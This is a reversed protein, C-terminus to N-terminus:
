RRQPSLTITPRIMMRTFALSVRSIWLIVTWPWQESVCGGRCNGVWESVETPSSSLNLWLSGNIIDTSNSSLSWCVKMIKALLQRDFLNACTYFIIIIVCFAASLEIKWAREVRLILVNVNKNLQTIFLRRKKFELFQLIVKGM